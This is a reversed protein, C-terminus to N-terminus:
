HVHAAASAPPRPPEANLREIEKFLSPLDRWGRKRDSNTDPGRTVARPGSTPTHDPWWRARLYGSRDILVEMHQPKPPVGEDAPVRRYLAYSAVTDPNPYALITHERTAGLEAPTATAQPSMPIAIIRTGLREFDPSAAQLARLRALSGPLTYLVLLVTAKGRMASLTEQAGDPRQFAFDPAVVPLFPEVAATMRNSQEADAQAHLFNLVDWRQTESLASGFGPMPTNEIGNSVWWFLTGEGHHFLHEGTLDAPKIPLSAALPGDGYGKTGHCVVCNQRYIPEGRAISAVGYPVPSHFYSTPYAPVALLVLPTLLAVTLTLVGSLALPRRHRMLGYVLVGIGIAGAVGAAMLGGQIWPADEAEEWSLDFPFPWVPQTHLAPTSIGLAALVGLLMVGLGTELMANRRLYRLANPVYSEATTGPLAVLRPTLRQRNIAAFCLMSAFLALKILLLHGYSTGVLGPINGVLFWSNVLGTLVLASVSIVGVRSFRRATEAALALRGVGASQRPPTLAHVLPLLAGLWAASALLHVMDAGLHVLREIGTEADAHGAFAITVLLAAALLAGGIFLPNWGQADVRGRQTLLVILLALALAGRLSWAQGFQTKGLVTGLIDPSLARALPLGSMSAAQVALWLLGTLVAAALSWWIQRTLFRGLRIREASEAAGLGALAPGGIFLAFGFAGALLMMAAYHAAHVVITLANM